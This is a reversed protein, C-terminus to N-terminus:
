SVFSPARPPLATRFSFQWIKPLEPPYSEPVPTLSQKPLLDFAFAIVCVPIEATPLSQIGNATKFYVAFESPCCGYSACPVSQSRDTSASQECCDGGSPLWGAQELLCHGTAPLYLMALLLAILAKWRSVGMYIIALGPINLRIKHHFPSITLSPRRLSTTKSNALAITTLM